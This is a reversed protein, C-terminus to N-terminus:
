YMSGGAWERATIYTRDRLFDNARDYTSGDIKTFKDYSRVDAPLTPEDDGSDNM